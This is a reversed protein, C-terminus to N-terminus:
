FEERIINMDIRKMAKDSLVISVGQDFQYKSRRLTCLICKLLETYNKNPMGEITTIGTGLLPIAISKAAYVRRIESWMRVLMLEYEELGIYAQNQNDFHSFSLMLFSEYPILRGIPYILQENSVEPLLKSSDSAAKKITEKLEELNSVHHDIMKGNLSNHAVIVDDVQTDFRDNFPIVKWGSESFLDGTKIEVPNGNIITKYPKHKRSNLYFYIGCALALIVALVILMWKWWQWSSDIDKIAYGCVGAFTGIGAIVSFSYQLSKKMTDTIKIM